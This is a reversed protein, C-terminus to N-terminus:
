SRRASKRSAPPGGRRPSSAPAHWGACRRSQPRRRRCSTCCSCRCCGTSVRMRSRCRAPTAWASSWARTAAPGASRTRSTPTLFIWGVSRAPPPVAPWRSPWAAPAAASTSCGSGRASPAPSTSSPSRWGGAGAGWRCRTPTGTPRPSPRPLPRPAWRLIAPGRGAAPAMRARNALGLVPSVISGRGGPPVVAARAQAVWAIHGVASRRGSSGSRGDAGRRPRRHAHGSRSIPM